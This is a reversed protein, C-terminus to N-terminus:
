LLNKVHNEFFSKPRYGIVKEVIRGNRDIVITTPIGTYVEYADVVDMNAMAIAYPVKNKEVFKKVVSPGARDVSIGVVDLGQDKYKLYLESFEPIGKICPPCWTAWFDLIVVKGRLSALSIGVGSNVHKLTFDPAPSFSVQAAAASEGQASAPKPSSSGGGCAIFGALLLISFPKPIHKLLTM